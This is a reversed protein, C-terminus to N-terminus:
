LSERGTQRKLQRSSKGLTQQKKRDPRFRELLRYM